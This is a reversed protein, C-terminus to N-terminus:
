CCRGASPCSGFGGLIVGLRDDRDVVGTDAEALQLGVLEEVGEPAFAVNPGEPPPRGPRAIAFEGRPPSAVGRTLRTPFTDGRQMARIRSDRRLHPSQATVPVM